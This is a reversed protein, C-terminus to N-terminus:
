LLRDDQIRTDFAVKQLSNIDSPAIKTQSFQVTLGSLDMVVGQPWDLHGRARNELILDRALKLHRWEIDREQGSIKRWCLRLLRNQIAPHQGCFGARDFVVTPLLDTERPLPAGKQERVLAMWAARTQEVLYSEDARVLDAMRALGTAPDFGLVEQWAPLLKHRLRNRLTFPDQNSDDLHYPIQQEALYALIEFRRIGLLPRIFPGNSLAM